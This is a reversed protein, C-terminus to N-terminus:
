GEINEFYNKLRAKDITASFTIEEDNVRFHKIAGYLTKSPISMKNCM